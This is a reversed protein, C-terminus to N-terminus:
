KATLYGIVTTQNLNDFIYILKGPTKSIILSCNTSNMYLVYSLAVNIYFWSTTSHVDYM